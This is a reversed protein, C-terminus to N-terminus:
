VRGVLEREQELPPELHRHGPLRDGRDPRPLEHALRRGEDGALLPRCRHAGLSGGPQEHQRLLPQARQPLVVGADVVHQELPRQV